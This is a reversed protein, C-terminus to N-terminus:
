VTSPLYVTATGSELIEKKAENKHESEESSIWLGSVIEFPLPAINYFTLV